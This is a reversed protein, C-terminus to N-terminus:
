WVLAGLGAVAAMEDMGRKFLLALDRKVLCSESNLLGGNNSCGSVSVAVTFQARRAAVAAWTALWMVLMFADLSLVAIIHYGANWAPIRETVLAYAVILWTLVSVAIALGLEDLFVGHVIDGSLGLIIVSLIFQAIRVAFVWPPTELVHDSAVKERTQEM